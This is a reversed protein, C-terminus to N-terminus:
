RCAPCSWAERPPVGTPTLWSAPPVGAVPRLSLRLAQRAGMRAVIRENASIYGPRTLVVQHEGPRVYIAAPTRAQSDAGDLAVSAGRPESSLMLLAPTARLAAAKQEIQARDPADPRESLYRQLQAHASEINGLRVDCEASSQLVIPNPVLEFAQDFALKAEAYKGEAFLTQGRAYAERASAQAADPPPPPVSPIAEAPAQARAVTALIAVLGVQLALARARVAM